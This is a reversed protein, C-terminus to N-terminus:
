GQTQKYVLVCRCNIVQGAEASVDGPGDMDADPPVVFKDNLDVEQGNAAVHDPGGKEGDRVRDDDATVWEKVIGPVQLSKVAELSGNNSAMSVETRAIRRASGASLDSFEAELFNSLDPLSDGETIAESVWESVIRKITRENTSTITKIQTATHRRVYEQVFSDYKLNAKTEFGLGLSKGEGLVMQGFDELTFRIHKAMTRALIPAFEDAEKQLAFEILKSDKGDLKRALSTLRNTLDDYDSKIDRYFSGELQKRRRNQRMWSQRKENANLLNISKWGKEDEDQSQTQSKANEDVNQDTSNDQGAVPTNDQNTQDNANNGPQNNNTGDQVATTALVDGGEVADYGVQERKENETLFTVPQLSLYKAERRPTLAEIDDKDYDLFVNDGYQPSLYNNLVGRLGDMTPLVTEEYFALRAEKYNNFTKQGLGVLEPPVGFITFIDTATTANSKLFDMEKPSLAIQQWQLGGEIIMPRGANRSGTHWENYEAKLRAYQENTMEGRPNADSIKNTLVGSPAASNQLLALNWTQGANNQDLQLLAAELPALGYWENTPNFTKWHAIKSRIKVPDVPWKYSVGGSCYEYYAPYGMNGPIIKMRDPRVPWIEIPKKKYLEDGLGTNAEIYANGAIEYFGVLAEIFQARDQLPNPKNLLTLVEHTEVETLKNGSRTYASWEIGKCATTIKSIATYVASNKSYGKRAFSEYNAPTYVPRGVQTFTSVIRAESQKRSFINKFREFVNM